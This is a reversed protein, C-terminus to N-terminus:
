RRLREPPRHCPLSLNQRHRLRLPLNQLHGSNLSEPPIVRAPRGLWSYVPEIQVATGYALVETIGSTFDSTDYRMALIANAGMALAREVLRSYAEARARDSLEHYIPQDGGFMTQIGATMAGAASHSRISLGTAIGLHRVVRFGELGDATTVCQHITPIM